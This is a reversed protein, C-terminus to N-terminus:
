SDEEDFFDEEGSRDKNDFDMLAKIKNARNGPIENGNNLAFLMESAREKQSENVYIICVEKAGNYEKRKFFSVREWKELYSIGANVLIRVIANKKEIDVTRTLEVEHNVM